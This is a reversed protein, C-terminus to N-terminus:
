LAVGLAIALLPLYVGPGIGNVTPLGAPILGGATDDYVDPDHEIPDRYGNFWNWCEGIAPEGPHNPQKDQHWVCAGRQRDSICRRGADGLSPDGCRDVIGKQWLTDYNALAVVQASKPRPAPLAFYGDLNQQLLDATENAYQTSIICTQGCGSNAILQQIALTVGAILPGVVPVLTSAAIGLITGGSAAVSSVVATAAVSAGKGAISTATNWTAVSGVHAAPRRSRVRRGPHRRSLDNTYLGGKTPLPAMRMM